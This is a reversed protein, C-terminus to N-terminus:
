DSKASERRYERPTMHYRELFVRNFTAQSQFGADLYIDTISDNTTLLREGAEDLRVDNLYQNFNEGFTGSYVRSIQYPSRGLARAMDQMTFAERYHEAVYRACQYVLDYDSDARRERLKVMPLLISLLLQVLSHTYVYRCTQLLEAGAASAESSSGPLGAPTVSMAGAPAEVPAEVLAGAESRHLLAKLITGVERPVSSAPIVPEEPQCRNLIDSFPGFLSQPIHLHIARCEEEPDIDYYNIQNPFIMVLDHLKIPWSETEIGAILVGRTVICLELTRDLHPRVRRSTKEKITLSNRRRYEPTRM